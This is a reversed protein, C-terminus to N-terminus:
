MLVCNILTVEDTIDLYGTCEGKVTLRDGKKINGAKDTDGIQFSCNIGGNQMSPENIVISLAGQQDRNIEKVIGSVQIVKGKDASLYKQNAAAENTSFDHYLASATLTYDANSTSINRHPKFYMYLAVGIATLFLIGAFLGINRYLKKNM